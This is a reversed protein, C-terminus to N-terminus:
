PCPLHFSSLVFSSTLVSAFLLSKGMQFVFPPVIASSRLACHSRLPLHVRSFLRQLGGRIDVSGFLHCRLWCHTTSNLEDPQRHLGFGGRDWGNLGGLACSLGHVLNLFLFLSIFCAFSTFSHFLSHTFSHIPSYFSPRYVPSSLVVSSRPGLVSFAHARCACAGLATM